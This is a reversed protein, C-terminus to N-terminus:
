NRPRSGMVVRREEILSDAMQNAAQIRTPSYVMAIYDNIGLGPSCIFLHHCAGITIFTGPMCEDPNSKCSFLGMTLQLTAKDLREIRAPMASGARMFKQSWLLNKYEDQSLQDLSKMVEKRSRSSYLTALLSAADRKPNNSEIKRAAEKYQDLSRIVRKLTAPGTADCLRQYFGHVYRYSDRAQQTDMVLGSATLESFRQDMLKSTIGFKFYRDCNARVSILMDPADIPVDNEMALEINALETEIRLKNANIVADPWAFKDAALSKVAVPPKAETIGSEPQTKTPNAENLPANAEIVPNALSEPADLKEPNYLFYLLIATLATISILTAIRASIIKNRM